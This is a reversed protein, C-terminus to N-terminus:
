KMHLCVTPKQRWPLYCNQWYVSLHSNKKTHTHPPPPPPPQTGSTLQAPTIPKGSKQLGSWDESGATALTCRSSIETESFSTLERRLREFLHTKRKAKNNQKPQHCVAKHIIASQEWHPHILVELLDTLQANVGLVLVHLIVLRWDACSRHRFSQIATVAAGELVCCLCRTETVQQYADIVHGGGGGVGRAGTEDM